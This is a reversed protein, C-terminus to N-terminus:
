DKELLKSNLVRIYELKDTGFNVLIGLRLGSKELYRLVQGIEKKTLGPLVKLELLIKGEVVFDFFFRGISEGKYQLEGSLEKQYKLGAKKLEIELAKQYYKEQLKSGLNNQVDFCMGVLQYSLEPEVLVM